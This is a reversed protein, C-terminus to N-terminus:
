GSSVSHTAMFKVTFESGGDKRGKSSGLKFM